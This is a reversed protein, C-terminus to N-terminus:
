NIWEVWLMKPMWPLQIMSFGWPLSGLLIDYSKSEVQLLWDADERLTLKGSRILYTGRLGDVSTSNLVEWHGIVAELLKLAQVMEAETFEIELEVPTSLPVNCLIKPLVLEYEAANRQGTALYHLLSVARSPQVIEDNVAIGLVEFFQPLFPHLLVLGSFNIYIGEKVDPVEDFLLQEEKHHAGNVHGPEADHKNENVSKNIISDAKRISKRVQHAIDKSKLANLHHPLFHVDYREFFKMFDALQLVNQTLIRIPILASIQQLAEKINTVDHTAIYRVIVQWFVQTLVKKDTANVELQNVLTILASLAQHADPLLLALLKELFETSFQFILRQRINEDVLTARADAQWALRQSATLNQWADLITDELRKGEGLQFSWPLRGTHLFYIFATRVSQSYTRLKVNGEIDSIEEEKQNLVSSFEIGLMKERLAKELLQEVHGALD